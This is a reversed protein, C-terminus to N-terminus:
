GASLTSSRRCNGAQSGRRRAKLAIYNGWVDEARVESVAGSPKGEYTQLIVDTMLPTSEHEMVTRLASVDIGVKDLRNLFGTIQEAELPAIEIINDKPITLAAGSDELEAYEGSRCTVVVNLWGALACYDNIAKLCGAQHESCVEDLGDLLLIMGRSRVEAIHTEGLGYQSRLQADIWNKLDQKPVPRWPALRLVV